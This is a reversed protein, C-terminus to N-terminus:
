IARLAGFSGGRTVELVLFLVVLLAYVCLFLSRGGDDYMLGLGEGEPCIFGFDDFDYVNFLGVGTWDVWGFVGAAVLVVCVGALAEFFAIGGWVKPYEDAALAVCHAFVVLMGGLYVLFFLLSLFPGGSNILLMCAVGAMLALGLAAYIPSPSSALAVAGLIFVGMMILTLYLM